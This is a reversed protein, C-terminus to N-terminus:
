KVESCTSKIKKEKEVGVEKIKTLMMEMYVGRSWGDGKWARM